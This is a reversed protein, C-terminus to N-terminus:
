GSMQVSLFGFLLWKVDTKPVWFGSCSALETGDLYCTLPNMQMM